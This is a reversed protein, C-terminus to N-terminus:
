RRKGGPRQVPPPTPGGAKEAAAAKRKQLTLQAIMLCQNTSWYLILASAMSYFFVLMLVPMFMMIRQQSPDGATPTLKQQWAMTAAMFVPLINLSGAIPIMGQLLNEPESLDRIWLFSAHRLDVANRLVYFLAIFVPIQVLTPLCGSIPNVKHTKYLAMTEQQMKQPKDKYKERLATLEPQLAQLKKMSETSKHTVPWFVIRIIVTLLIITIGYSPLVHYIGNMIWMLVRCVPEFMGFDMIQERHNGLRRVAEYDKPGAYYSVHRVFAAGPALTRAKDQVVASVADVLPSSAWTRSDLPKEASTDRRAQLVYASGPSELSLIQAFFRTRVAVWSVENPLAYAVAAPLPKPPTGKPIMACGGRRDDPQFVAQVDKMWQRVKEGAGAQLVDLGLHTSEMAKPGSSGIVMEGLQLGGAPLAVASRTTNSFVDTVKIEYGDTLGITRTFALGSDTRREIRATRRAQDVEIEFDDNTGLEPIGSLALSPRASFDLVVPQSTPAVTQRFKGLEVSAVAGGWSTLTLTQVANSLTVRKEPQAPGRPAEEAAPSANTAAPATLAPPERPPLAQVQQTASLAESAAANTESQAAAATPALPAPPPAFFKMYLPGWALFLIFLGAIIAIDRIPLNFKKM